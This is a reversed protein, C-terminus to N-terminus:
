LEQYTILTGLNAFLMRSLALSTLFKGIIGELVKRNEKPSAAMISRASPIAARLAMLQAPLRHFSTQRPAELFFGSDSAESRWAM